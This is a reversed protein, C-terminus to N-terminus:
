SEKNLEEAVELANKIETLMERGKKQGKIKVM